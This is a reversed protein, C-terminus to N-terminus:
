GSAEGPGFSESFRKSTKMFATTDCWRFVRFRSQLWWQVGVVEHNADIGNFRQEPMCRILDAMDYEPNVGRIPPEMVYLLEGPFFTDSDMLQRDLFEIGPVGPIMLINYSKAQLSRQIFPRCDPLGQLPGDGFPM